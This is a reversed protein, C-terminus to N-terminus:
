NKIIRFRHNTMETELIFNYVGVTSPLTVEITSDIKTSSFDILQGLCNTIKLGKLKQEVDMIIVLSSTPNPYVEFIEKNKIEFNGVEDIVICDSIVACTGNDVEVAYNGNTTATFTQNTAGDIPQNGNDCDVWQYNYGTEDASLTVADMQTIGNDISTIVVNQTQTSTNGNGDIYTWTVITTGQSTIPLTANHVGTITGSCNDSATPAFLSTVSCESTINSLNTIDEIPALADTIVVNQTQSSINGNGDNYTWTVETTGQATIPFTTNHMGIITQACNNTATPASISTVSCEAYIDPLNSLDPILSSPYCQSFKLCFADSGLVSSYQVVNPGPDFDIVDDYTGALYLNGSDSIMISNAVDINSTGEISVNYILTGDNQYKLLYIDYTNATLQTIGIGPEFDVTGYFYGTAYWNNAEDCIVHTTKEDFSGGFGHGWSFNGSDNLNVLFADKLGSSTQTFNAVGPDLDVVGKYEGTILCNESDDVVINVADVNDSGSIVKVWIFNGNADLKVIFGDTKDINLSVQTNTEPGPDFDTTGIFRGTVFINGNDSSTVSNAIGSGGLFAKAWVFNGASDIKMVYGNSYDVSTLNYVGISPDFDKTGGFYGTFILSGDALCMMKRRTSAMVNGPFLNAWILDGDENYKGIFVQQGADGLLNYTGPGPDADVQTQLLAYVYINNFTDCAVAYPKNTGFGSIQKAWIFNGNADLKRIYIDEFNTTLNYVGPGPDFDQTGQYWGVTIVNEDHDLAGGLTQNIDTSQIPAVWEFNLTQASVGYVIGM